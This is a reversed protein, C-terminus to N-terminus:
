TTTLPPHDALWAAAAAADRIAAGVVVPRIGPPIPVVDRVDDATITGRELALRVAARTLDRVVAARHAHLLSLAKDRLTEGEGAGNRAPEPDFLNSM